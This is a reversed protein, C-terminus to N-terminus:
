EKEKKTVLVKMKEIGKEKKRRVNQKKKLEMSTFRLADPCVSNSSGENM